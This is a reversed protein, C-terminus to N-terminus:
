VTCGMLPTSSSRLARCRRRTLISPAPSHELVMQLLVRYMVVACPAPSHELVMQLLVRYMVVACPCTLTGFGDAATSPVHCCWLPLHAYCSVASRM